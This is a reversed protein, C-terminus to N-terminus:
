PWSHSRIGKERLTTFLRYSDALNEKLGGGWAGRMPAIDVHHEFMFEDIRDSIDPNNLMEKAIPAEIPASDIDLKFVFFDEKKISKLIRLVDVNDGTGCSLFTNIWVYYPFLDAPVQSFATSANLKEAEVAIFRKFETGRKHYKEYGWLGSAANAVNTWGGFYSSGLDLWVNQSEEYLEETKPNKAFQWPPTGYERWQPKELNLPLEDSYFYPAFGFTLIHQKSQGLHVTSDWKPFSPVKQNGCYGDLPDRLMGWLPEILQVGRKRVTKAKPAKSLWCEEVYHMRSFWKDRPDSKKLPASDEVGREWRTSNDIYSLDVVRSLIDTSNSAQDLLKACLIPEWTPLNTRWETEYASPEYHDFRWQCETRNSADEYPKMKPCIREVERVSSIDTDRKLYPVELFYLTLSVVVFSALAWLFHNKTLM